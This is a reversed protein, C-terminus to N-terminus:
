RNLIQIGETRSEALTTGTGDAVKINFNVTIKAKTEVAQGNQMIPKFHWERVAQQAANALIAPGNIVHLDQIVGDAGILAQLVVSGQVNMHQALLPYSPQQADASLSEREAANTPATFRAAPQGPRTIEVKTANSGPRITRHNEGAVVEVDLPPLVTRTTTVAPADTPTPDSSSKDAQAQQKSAPSTTSQVRHAPAPVSKTSPAKQSTKAAVASDTADSDLASPQTGFWFQRDKVVVGVLAVLLLVLALVLRRPQSKDAARSQPAAVIPRPKLERMKQRVLLKAERFRINTSSKLLTAFMMRSRATPSLPVAHPSPPVLPGHPYGSLCGSSRKPPGGLAATGVNNCSVVQM